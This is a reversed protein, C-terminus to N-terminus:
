RDATVFPTVRRTTLKRAVALASDMSPYHGVRVAFPRSMGAVRAMYGHACLDEQETTADVLSEYSAVQVTWRGIPRAKSRAAVPKAIKSSASAVDGASAGRRGNTVASRHGTDAVSVDPKTLSVEGPSIRTTTAPPTPCGQTSLQAQASASFIAVALPVWLILGSPQRM